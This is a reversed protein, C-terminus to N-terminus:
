QVTITVTTDAINPLASAHIVTTGPAVGTITVIASTAGPGFTVTAPVTAVAPNDSKLNVTLATASIPASLMLTLRGQRAISVVANDPTFALPSIVRVTQTSMSASDSTTIVASGLTVGCVSAMRRVPTTQGAPITLSISNLGGPFNVVSPDSTTLTIIDGNSGPPVSLVVPFPACQGPQAVVGPPQNNVTTVSIGAYQYKTVQNM